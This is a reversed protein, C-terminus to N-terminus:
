FEVLEGEGRSGAHVVRHVEGLELTLNNGRNNDTNEDKHHVETSGALDRVVTRWREPNAAVAIKKVMVLRHVFVTMHERRRGSSDKRRKTKSERSLTFKRYGDEDLRTALYRRRGRTLSIVNGTALSVDLSGDRLCRVMLSEGDRHVYKRGYGGFRRQNRGLPV